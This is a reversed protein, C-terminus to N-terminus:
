DRSWIFDGRKTWGTSPATEGGFSVELGGTSRSEIPVRGSCAASATDGEVTSEVTILCVVTDEDGDGQAAYYAVDVDTFLLRSSDRDFGDVSSTAAPLEDSADRPADFLTTVPAPTACGALGIVLLLAVAGARKM